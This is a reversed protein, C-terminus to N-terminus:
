LPIHALLRCHTAELLIKNAHIVLFDCERMALISNLPVLNNSEVSSAYRDEVAVKLVLSEPDDKRRGTKTWQKRDKM